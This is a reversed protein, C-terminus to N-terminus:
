ETGLVDILLDIEGEIEGHSVCLLVFVFNILINLVSVLWILM